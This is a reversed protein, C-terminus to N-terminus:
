SPSAKFPNSCAMRAQKIRFMMRFHDPRELWSHAYGRMIAVTANM